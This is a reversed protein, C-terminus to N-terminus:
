TEDKRRMLEAVLTETPHDALPPPEIAPRAEWGIGPWQGPQPQSVPVAKARFVPRSLLDPNRVRHRTWIVANFVAIVAGAMVVAAFSWAVAIFAGGVAGAIRHWALLIVGFLFLVAMAGAGIGSLIGRYHVDGGGRGSMM